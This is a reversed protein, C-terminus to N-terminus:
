QSPFTREHEGDAAPSSMSETIRARLHERERQYYEAQKVYHRRAATVSWAGGLPQMDVHGDLLELAEEYGGYSALLAANRLLVGEDTNGYLGQALRQYAPRVEGQMLHAIGARQNLLVHLAGPATASREIREILVLTPEPGTHGDCPLQLMLDLFRTIQERSVANVVPLSVVRQEVRAISAAPDRAQRCDLSVQTMLWPLGDPALAIAKQNLRDAEALNGTEVWRSALYHQARPSDPASRAWALAQQFPKGWLDARMCTLAALAILLGIAAGARPMVARGPRTLLNAVPLFLLAAPLYNRHEFYLELNMFTSELVHGALFFLCALAALPARARFVWALVGLGALVAWALGALIIEGISSPTHLHDNFLNGPAPRPMLLHGLYDWLILGQGLLREGPTFSRAGPNGAFLAPLTQAMYLLLLATPVGLLLVRWWWWARAPAVSSREQRAALVTVELVLALLPLLAGNEKSLVALAGCLVIGVASQLVASVSLARPHNLRSRVYLWLGLLVFLTSLQAMRQVAYLTTSVWFPHLLWMATALLAFRVARAPQFDLARAIQRTLLYLAVGVLLHVIVNTHKFSWSAAPWDRADILFSLTALPRGTPGSFGSLLYLWLAELNDIRGYYGLVALNSFDDFLFAGSLGPWYALYAVALLLCLLAGAVARPQERLFARASVAGGM